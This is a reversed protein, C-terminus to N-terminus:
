IKKLNKDSLYCLKFNKKKFDRFPEKKVKATTSNQKLNTRKTKLM